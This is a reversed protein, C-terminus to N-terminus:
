KGEKHKNKNEESFILEPLITLLLVLAAASMAVFRGAPQQIYAVLYGLNPITFDVKGVIAEPRVPNADADDNNDGKTRFSLSDGEDLVEIIRHTGRVGGGLEFTIVDGEELREPEVNKVYVLSGVHIAPEMSGSQVMLIEYGLFRFGWLLVALILIMGILVTTVLNWVKKITNQM